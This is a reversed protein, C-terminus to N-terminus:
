RIMRADQKSQKPSVAEFILAQETKTKSILPSRHNQRRTETGLTQSNARNQFNLANKKLEQTSEQSTTQSTGKITKRNNL